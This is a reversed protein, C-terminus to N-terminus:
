ADPGVAPPEGDSGAGRTLNVGRVREPRGSEVDLIWLEVVQHHQRSFPYPRPHRVIGFGIRRPADALDLIQCRGRHEPRLSTGALRAPDRFLEDLRREADRRLRRQPSSWWTRLRGLWGM